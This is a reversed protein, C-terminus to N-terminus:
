HFTEELYKWKNRYQRIIIFFRVKNRKPLDMIDREPTDRVDIVMFPAKEGPKLSEIARAFEVNVLDSQEAYIWEPPENKKIWLM